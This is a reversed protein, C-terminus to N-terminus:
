KGISFTRLVLTFSLLVAIQVIIKIFKLFCSNGRLGHVKSSNRDNIQM